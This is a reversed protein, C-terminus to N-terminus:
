ETKFSQGCSCTSIANPNSFRFAGGMLDESYDLNVGLLYPTSQEEVIVAIGNTEIINETADRQHQKLDLNYLLGSCGGPTVSIHLLSEPQKRSQQLRKIERAATPSIQIM